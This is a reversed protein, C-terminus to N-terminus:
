TKLVAVGCGSKPLHLRDDNALKTGQAVEVQKDCDDDWIMIPATVFIKHTRQLCCSPANESKVVDREWANAISNCPGAVQEEPDMGGASSADLRKLQSQWWRKGWARETCEQPFREVLWLM